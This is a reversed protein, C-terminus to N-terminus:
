KLLKSIAWGALFACGVSMLPHKKISSETKKVVDEARHKNSEVSSKARARLNGAADQAAEGALHYAQRLKEQSSTNHASKATAM